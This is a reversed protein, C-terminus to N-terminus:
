KSEIEKSIYTCIDPYYTPEIDVMEKIKRKVSPCKDIVKISKNRGDSGMLASKILWRLLYDSPAFSVGFFVIHTATVMHCHALTWMAGIRPYNHFAKNIAPTVILPQLRYGCYNCVNDPNRESKSMVRISGYNRCGRNPCHYWDISGHLKLYFGFDLFEREVAIDPIVSDLILNVMSGYLPHQTERKEKETQIVNLTNEVVLDYNLTIISDAETVSRFIEELRECSLRDDWQEYDLRAEIYRNLQERTDCLYGDLKKGFRGTGELSLDLYTIVEELNVYKTAINPSHTEVFKRLDSFEDKALDEEQFFGKM